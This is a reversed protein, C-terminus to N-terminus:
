LCIFYLHQGSQAAKLTLSKRLQDRLRKKTGEEQTPLATKDITELDEADTHDVDADIDHVLIGEDPELGIVSSASSDLVHDGSGSQKPLSLPEMQSPILNHSHIHLNSLSPSPRLSPAIVLRSPPSRALTPTSARSITRSRSTDTSTMGALSQFFRVRGLCQTL